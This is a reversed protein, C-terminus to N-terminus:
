LAILNGEKNNNTTNGQDELEAGSMAPCNFHKQVEARRIYEFQFM